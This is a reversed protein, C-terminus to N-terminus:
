IAFAARYRVDDSSAKQIFAAGLQTLAFESGGVPQVLGLVCLFKLRYTLDEEFDSGTPEQKKAIAQVQTRVQFPSQNSGVQKLVILIRLSSTTIESALKSYAGAVTRKAAENPDGKGWLEMAKELLGGSASVVAAAIAPDLM